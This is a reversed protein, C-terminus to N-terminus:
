RYHSKQEDFRAQEAQKNRRQAEGFNLFGFVVARQRNHEPFYMINIYDQKHQRDSFLIYRMM